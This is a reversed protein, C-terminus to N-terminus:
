MCDSNYFGYKALYYAVQKVKRMGYLFIYIIFVFM